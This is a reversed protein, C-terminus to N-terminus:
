VELVVYRKEALSLAVSMLILGAVLLFGGTVGYVVQLALGSSVMVKVAYGVPFLFAASFVMAFMTGFNGKMAQHPNEWGLKPSMLDNIMCIATVPLSVLAGLVAILALHLADVKLLAACSALLIVLQLLAFLLNYGMKGKFQERPSVPIMKSAWFVRGERTVCTSAVQNASVMFGHVGIIVLTMIDMAFGTAGGVLFPIGGQGTIATLTIIMPFVVLNVLVTLLFNPTRVLMYHDRLAVAVSPRRARFVLRSAGRDGERGDARGFLGRRKKVEGRSTAVDATYGGLFWRQALRAVRWLVGFSIGTFLFMGGFRDLPAEATLADAAWRLPPYYGAVVKLLGNREMLVRMTEEPGRAVMSTNLYNLGMIVVFFILGLVVRFQDRKRSGKTVRMILVTGLLSLATPIAPIAAAVLAMYLWYEPVAIQVGLAVLFPGTIVLAIFFEAVYAVFVKAMMIQRPLLPMALLTPIDDAYYLVSMVSSVGFFFVLFQGALVATVVALGPQGIAILQTAMVRAMSYLQGILPVFALGILALYIYAYRDKKGLGLKEALGKTGYAMKLQTRFLSGFPSRVKTRGLGYHAEKSM